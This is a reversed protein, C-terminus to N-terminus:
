PVFRAFELTMTENAKIKITQPVDDLVYGSRTRTEKAIVTMGPELGDVRITGSSDTVYKGNSNGIVNGDSSTLQFEVDSLPKGTAADKKIILLSGKKDNGFTVTIVDQEKGSLYVTQASDNIVYGEPASIEYPLCRRAM